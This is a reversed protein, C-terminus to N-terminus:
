SIPTNRQLESTAQEQPVHRVVTSPYKTPRALQAKHVTRGM